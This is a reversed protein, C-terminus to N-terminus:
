RWTALKRFCSKPVIPVGQRALVEYRALKEPYRDLATRRYGLSEFFRDALTVAFLEGVGRRRAMAEVGLVAMSGLGGGQAEDAVAVSGVEALSPSYEQLAACALVRGRGDAVAIYDDLALAIESATRPLVLGREANVSVLEFIDEVDAASAARVVHTASLHARGHRTLRQPARAVALKHM